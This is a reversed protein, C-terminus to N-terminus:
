GGVELDPIELQTDGWALTASYSGGPASGRFHGDEDIEIELRTEDNTLTLRGGHHELGRIAGRIAWADGDDPLEIQVDAQVPGNAFQLERRFRDDHARLAPSSARSDYVLALVLQHASKGLSRRTGRDPAHIAVARNIARSPPFDAQDGEATARVARYLNTFRRAAPLADLLRHAMAEQEASAEGEAQAILAIQENLKM